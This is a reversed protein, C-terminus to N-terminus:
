DYPNVDTNSLHASITDALGPINAGVMYAAAMGLMVLSATLVIWDVTVAGSEDRVFKTRLIHVFSMM